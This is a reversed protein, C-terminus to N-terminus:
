DLKNEKCTCWELNSVDNNLKNGDIHNVQLQEIPIDKYKEPIPIFTLAVTRHM